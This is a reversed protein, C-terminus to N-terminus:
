ETIFESRPVKLTGEIFDWAGTWDDFVELDSTGFPVQYKVCVKGADTEFVEIQSLFPDKELM